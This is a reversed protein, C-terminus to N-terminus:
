NAFVDKFFPFDISSFDHEIKMSDLVQSIQGRHHTGHNFQSHVLYGLPVKAPNGGFWEIDVLSDLDKDTL